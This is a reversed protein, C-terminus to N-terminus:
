QEPNAHNEKVEKIKSLMYKLRDHHSYGGTLCRKRGANAITEREETHEMYYNVKELLEEKSGFFKAEKGEEFLQQQEGTRAALMFSGSAPIEFTRGTTVDDNMKRLFNLIIKSAHMAKVFDEEHIPKYMIQLFPTSKISDWGNGFVTIKINNEALYKLYEYREKEYTGIFIVNYKYPVQENKPYILNKDFSRDVYFVDRAGLKYYFEKSYGTITFIIDYYKISREFYRSRNHRKGMNDTSFFVVKTEESKKKIQCLTEPHIMLGKEIWVIDASFQKSAEVIKKNIQTEDSPYGIKNRFRSWYSLRGHLGAIRGEPAISLGKVECGLDQLAKFRQYTRTYPNLDGVFLIRKM